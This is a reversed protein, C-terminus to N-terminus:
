TMETPGARFEYHESGTQELFYVPKFIRVMIGARKKREGQPNEVYVGRFTPTFFAEQETRRLRASVISGTLTATRCMAAPPM